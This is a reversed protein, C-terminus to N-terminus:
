NKKHWISVTAPSAPATAAGRAATVAVVIGNVFYRLPFVQPDRGSFGSAPVRVELVAGTGVTVAGVSAADYFQLYVDTAGNNECLYGHLNGKSNSILKVNTSEDVSVNYSLDPTQSPHGLPNIM